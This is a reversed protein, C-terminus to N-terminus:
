NSTSRTVQNTHRETVLTQMLRNFKMLAPELLIADQKSVEGATLISVTNDRIELIGPYVEISTEDNESFFRIEGQITEAILPGHGPKIGIWGGDALPVSISILNDKKVSIGDPSLIHLSLLPFSNM